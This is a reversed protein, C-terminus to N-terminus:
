LVDQNRRNRSLDHTLRSSKKVKKTSAPYIRLIAETKEEQRAALEIRILKQIVEQLAYNKYRRCTRPVVCILDTFDSLSINYEPCIYVHYLLSWGILSKSQTSADQKIVDIAQSRTYSPLQEKTVIQLIDRQWLWESEIIDTLLERVTYRLLAHPTIALQCLSKVKRQIIELKRLAPSIYLESDSYYLTDLTKQLDKYTLCKTQNTM